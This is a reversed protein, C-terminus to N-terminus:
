VSKESVANTAPLVLLIKLLIIVEFFYEWSKASFSKLAKILDKILYEDSSFNGKLSQLQTTLIIIDLNDGYVALM